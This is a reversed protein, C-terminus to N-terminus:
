ARQRVVYTKALKDHWGQKASDRAIWVGALVVVGMTSFFGFPPPIFLTGFLVFYKGVAERLVALGIGPAEGRNNVVKIGLLRKGPTRGKLGVFPVHYALIMLLLFMYLSYGSLTESEGLLIFLIWVPFLFTTDLVLAAYRMWFGVYQLGELPSMQHSPSSM